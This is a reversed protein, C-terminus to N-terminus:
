KPTLAAEGTQEIHCLRAWRRSSKSRRRPTPSMIRAACSMASPSSWMMWWSSMTYLFRGDERILVPDSLTATDIEVAGRIAGDRREQRAFKRM